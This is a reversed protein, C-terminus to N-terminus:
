GEHDNNHEREAKKEKWEQRICWVSWAVGLTSAVLTVIYANSYCSRGDLCQKEGGDVPTSRADLNKGYILNFINGSVVPAM